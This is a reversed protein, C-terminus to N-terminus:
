PNSISRISRQCINNDNRSSGRAAALESGMMLWVRKPLSPLPPPLFLKRGYVNQEAVFPLTPRVRRPFTYFSLPLWSIQDLKHVLNVGAMLAGHKGWLWKRRERSLCSFLQWPPKAAAIPLTKRWELMNVQSKVIEPIHFNSTLWLWTLLM